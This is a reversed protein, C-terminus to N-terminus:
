KTERAALYCEFRKVTTDLRDVILDYRLGSPLGFVRLEYIERKVAAIFRHLERKADDDACVLDESVKSHRAAKSEM